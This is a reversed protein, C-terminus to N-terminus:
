PHVGPIRCNYTIPCAHLKLAPHSMLGAHDPAM